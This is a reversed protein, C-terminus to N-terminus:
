IDILGDEDMNDTIWWDMNINVVWYGVIFLGCYVMPPFSWGLPANIADHEKMLRDNRRNGFM